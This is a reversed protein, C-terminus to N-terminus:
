KSLQQIKLSIGQKLQQIQEEQNLYLRQAEEHSVETFRVKEGPKLQAMMPLDVSAIQGIKPYGGTTQRDALLIIPNGEAPVQITGFSVAESLMERENELELKPGQM